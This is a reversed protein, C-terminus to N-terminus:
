IRGLGIGDQHLNCSIPVGGGNAHLIKANANGWLFMLVEKFAEKTHTVWLRLSERPKSKAEKNRRLNDFPLLSPHPYFTALVDARGKEKGDRECRLWFGAHYPFYSHM